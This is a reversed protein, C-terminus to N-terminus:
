KNKNSFLSRTGHSNNASRAHSNLNVLPLPVSEIMVTRSDNSSSAARRQVPISPLNQMYNPEKTIDVYYLRCIEEELLERNLNSKKIKGDSIALCMYIEQLDNVTKVLKLEGLLINYPKGSYQAILQQKKNTLKNIKAALEISKAARSSEKAQKDQQSQLKLSKLMDCREKSMVVGLSTDLVNSRRLKPVNTDTEPGDNNDDSQYDRTDASVMINRVSEQSDLEMQVLDDALQTTTNLSEFIIRNVMLRMM